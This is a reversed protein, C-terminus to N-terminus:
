LAVQLLMILELAQLQTHQQLRLNKVRMISGDLLTPIIILIPIALIKSQLQQLELREGQLQVILVLVLQVQLHLPKLQRAKMTPEAARELQLLIVILTVLTMLPLPQHM